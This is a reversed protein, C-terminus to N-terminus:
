GPPALLAVVPADRTGLVQEVEVENAELREVRAGLADLFADPPELFSIADTRYHHPVVLRPKLERVVNAAREGGITPGDGVPLLLVDITGLAKKQEPRLEQQGFDGFHAYALGDLEFRFITNPGRQTGAVDDHESAVGVVEGVPSEHTGAVRLVPPEGGVVHVANHDLHDHTVLVLDATAGEIPPYGWTIGRGTLASMDGFPDVFVSKSGAALFASQGFWRVLTM